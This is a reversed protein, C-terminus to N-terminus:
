FTKKSRKRELYYAINGFIIFAVIVLHAFSQADMRSTALDPRGILAEYEAAGPMGALIGKIQGANVYPMVDNVQVSTTGTSMPIGTPDAAYLVWERSGPYGCQDRGVCKERDVVVIGDEERKTIAEAPCATVCPANECHYCLNANFAMFLNPYTGKETTSVRLWSAPGAPVDHWDKCGVVCSFCADCRSQDFYIGLQKSGASKTKETSKPETSRKTAEEM